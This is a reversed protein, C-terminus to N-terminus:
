HPQKAVSSSKKSLLRVVEFFLVALFGVLVSWLFYHVIPKSGNQWAGSSVEGNPGVSRYVTFVTARRSGAFHAVYTAQYVRELTGNWVESTTRKFDPNEANLGFTTSQVGVSRRSCSASGVRVAWVLGDKRLSQLISDFDSPKTFGYYAPAIVLPVLGLWFTFLAWAGFFRRPTLFTKQEVAVSSSSMQRRTYMERLTLDQSVPM